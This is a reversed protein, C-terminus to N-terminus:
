RGQHHTACRKELAPPERRNLSRRWRVEAAFQVAALALLALQAGLAALTLTPHSM